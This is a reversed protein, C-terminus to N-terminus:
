QTAMSALVAFLSLGGQKFPFARGMRLVSEQERLNLSCTPMAFGNNLGATPKVQSFWTAQKGDRNDPQAVAYNACVFVTSAPIPEVRYNPLLHKILVPEWIFDNTHSQGRWHCYIYIRVRM